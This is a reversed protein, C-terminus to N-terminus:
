HGKALGQRREMERILASFQEAMEHRMFRVGISSPVWQDPVIEIQYDIRAGGEAAQVRLESHM